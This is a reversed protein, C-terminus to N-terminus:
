TLERDLTYIAYSFRRRGRQVKYLHQQARGGVSRLAALLEPAPGQCWIALRGGPALRQYALRLFEPTYVSSNEQHILFDPGNDIDLAIADFFGHAAEALVEAVDGSVLHVRPDRALNALLPTLGDLAWRVLGDELEVVVVEGVPLTLAESATYGLGLGGVLLRGGAPGLDYALRALQRESTTESSDMAFTGNVILEDVADDGTGRRRLVVEGRLGLFRGLTTLEEV